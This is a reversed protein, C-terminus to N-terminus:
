VQAIMEKLKRPFAPDIVETEGGLELMERLVRAGDSEPYADVIRRAQQYTEVTNPLDGRYKEINERYTKKEEEDAIFTNLSFWDMMSRYSHAFKIMRSMTDSFTYTLKTDADSPFCGNKADYRKQAFHDNRWPERQAKDRFDPIDYPVGGEVASRYALIGASTCDAASYIDFPGPVGDRIERAFYYLTWFDGGGHGSKEAIEGFGEPWEPEVKLKLSQGFSGGLKLRLGDGVNEAAAKTGWLRAIHGDNTTAGMLNRFLSGNSMTILSPAIGQYSPDLLGPVGKEGMLSVVRTPRLGTINMIPGLSHTNYYHFHFWSRWFHVNNGPMVPKGDIYTYCYNMCNHLYEFEAYQLDGFLGERYKEALFLNQKTFPYNEALNYVLGHKEVAEVLKVGEAMTHFSTVESLVHKGAELALIADAAHETAFTALLVADMDYDLFARYDDTVFAGPNRELFNDRMHPNFDCGAVVDIGLAECNKYFSMGRGLGWIGLRITRQDKMSFDKTM